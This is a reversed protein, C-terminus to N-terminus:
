HWGVSINSRYKSYWFMDGSIKEDKEVPFPQAGRTAIGVFVNVFLFPRQARLGERFHNQASISVNVPEGNDDLFTM